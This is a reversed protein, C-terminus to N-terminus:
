DILNIIKQVKIHNEDTRMDFVALKGNKRGFSEYHLDVNYISSDVCENIVEILEYYFDILPKNSFAQVLDQNPVLRKNFARGSYNLSEKHYRLLKGEIELFKKGDSKRKSMDLYECVIIYPYDKGDIPEVKYVDYINIINNFKKGVLENALEAENSSYTIKIVKNKDNKVKFAYGNSGKGLFKGLTYGLKNITKEYNPHINSLDFEENFLENFILNIEQIRNM